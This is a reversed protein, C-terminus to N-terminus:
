PFRMEPGNNRGLAAGERAMSVGAGCCRGPGEGAMQAEAMRAGQGRCYQESGERPGALPEARALGVGELYSGRLTQPLTPTVGQGRLSKRGQGGSGDQRENGRGPGGGRLRRLVLLWSM